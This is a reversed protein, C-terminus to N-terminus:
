PKPHAAFFDWIIQSAPLDSPWLRGGPLTYLEVATGAKCSSYAAHTITNNLLKEVQAAGSCGDLQVWLKIVAEVSLSNHHGGGTYPMHDDELGHMHIVAVPERPKCPGYLLVGSVPAIAAFTDSMECALRYPLSAGHSFGTAYIRKSDVSAITRLDSLIQRVFAAEDVNTRAAYGCCGGGDNWSSSGFLGLGEPYVVLFGSKDAIKDFGTMSRIDVGSSDFEHFAFVVPVPRTREIGVPIHLLYSREMDDVILTRQSNAPEITPAPTATPGVTATPVVTPVVTPAPSTCGTLLLIMLVILLSIRSSYVM